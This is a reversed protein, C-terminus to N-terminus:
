TTLPTDHEMIITDADVYLLWDYKPLHKQAMLVKFWSPKRTPDLNEYNVHIDYGHKKAYARKDDEAIKGLESYYETEYSMIIAVSPASNTVFNSPVCKRTWNANRIVLYKIQEGNLYWILFLIVLVTVGYAVVRRNGIRKQREHWARGYMVFLLVGLESPNTMGVCISCSRM